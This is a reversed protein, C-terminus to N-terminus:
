SYNLASASQDLDRQRRETESAHKLAAADTMGRRQDLATQLKGAGKKSQQLRAQPPPSTMLVLATTHYTYAPHISLFPPTPSTPPLHPLLSLHYTHHPTYTHILHFSILHSQPPHSCFM